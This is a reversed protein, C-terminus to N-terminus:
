FIEGLREGSWTVIGAALGGHVPRKTDAEALLRWRPSRSGQFLDQIM